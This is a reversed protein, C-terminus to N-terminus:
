EYGIGDVGNGLDVLDVLIVLRVRLEGVAQGAGGGGHQIVGLGHSNTLQQQM